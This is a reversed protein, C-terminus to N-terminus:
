GDKIDHGFEAFSAGTEYRIIEEAAFPRSEHSREGRMEARVPQLEGFVDHLLREHPSQLGPGIAANGVIRGCPESLGCFVEREIGQATFLVPLAFFCLDGGLLFAPERAIFRGVLVDQGVVRQAHEKHAKVRLEGDLGLERESQASNAAQARRLDARRKEGAFGGDRLAEHTRSLKDAIQSQRKGNGISAFQWLSEIADEGREIQEEVFAVFGGGAVSEDALLKTVFGDTERAQKGLM